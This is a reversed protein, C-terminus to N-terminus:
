PPRGRGKIHRTKGHRRRQRPQACSPKHAITTNTPTAHADEQPTHARKEHGRWANPSAPQYIFSSLTKQHHIANQIDNTLKEQTLTHRIPSRTANGILPLTRIDRMQLSRSNRQVSAASACTNSIQTHACGQSNPHAKQMGANDNCRHLTPTARSRHRRNRYTNRKAVHSERRM